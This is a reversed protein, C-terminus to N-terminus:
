DDVQQDNARDDVPRAGYGTQGSIFAHTGSAIAPSVPVEIRRVNDKMSNLLDSGITSCECAKTIPENGTLTLMDAVNDHVSRSTWM